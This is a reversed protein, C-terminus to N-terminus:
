DDSKPPRASGLARRRDGFGSATGLLRRRLFSSSANTVLDAFSSDFDHARALSRHARNVVRRKQKRLRPTRGSRPPAVTEGGVGLAGEGVRERPRHAKQMKPLLPVSAVSLTETERPLSGFVSVSHSSSRQWVGTGGDFLSVQRPTETVVGPRSGVGEVIHFGDENASSACISLSGRRGGNENPGFPLPAPAGISRVERGATPTGITETM